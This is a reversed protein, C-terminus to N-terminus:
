ACPHQEDFQKEAEHLHDLLVQSILNVGIGGIMAPLLYLAISIESALVSDDMLSPSLKSSVALRQLLYIGAGAIAMLM